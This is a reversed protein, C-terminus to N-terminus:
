EKDCFIVKNKDMIVDYYNSANQLYYLWQSRLHDNTFHPDIASMLDIYDKPELAEVSWHLKKTTNDIYEM